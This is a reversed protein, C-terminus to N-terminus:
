DCVFLSYGGQVEAAAVQWGAARLKAQLAARDFDNFFGQQRRRTRDDLEEVSRYTAILRKCSARCRALLAPVDHIHELLELALACDWAGDPFHGDNLDMVVTAKAYRILDVPTYATGTKMKTVIPMLGAGLDLLRCRPPIHPLALAARAEAGADLNRPNAWRWGDSARALILRETLAAQDAPTFDEKMPPPLGTYPAYPGDYAVRKAFGPALAVLNGTENGEVWPILACPLHVHPFWHIAYGCGRLQDIMAEFAAHRDPEAYFDSKELVAAAVQGSGLLRAAGAVVEPEYGEVDIKLFVRRGALAPREAFLLDLPVIPVTLPPNDEPADARAHAAIFNGMTSYPWLKGLGPAAGAAACVLEIAHQQGNLALQRLLTLQNLPHPEFAIVTVAGLHRTAAGLSYIGLHAGVDIFVDDPELHADLFARTPFEYGARQTELRFLIEMGPDDAYGPPLSLHFRPTGDAKKQVSPLLFFGNPARQLPVATM